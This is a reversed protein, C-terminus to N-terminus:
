RTVIEYLGYLAAFGSMIGAMLAIWTQRRTRGASECTRTM